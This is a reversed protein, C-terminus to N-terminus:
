SFTQPWLLAVLLVVAGKILLGTRTHILLNIVTYILYAVVLIDVADRWSFTNFISLIDSITSNM